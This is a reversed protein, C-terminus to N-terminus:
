SLRKPPTGWLDTWLTEGRAWMGVVKGSKPSSRKGSLRPKELTHPLPPWGERSDSDKGLVWPGPYLRLSKWVAEGWIACPCRHLHLRLIKRSSTVWSWPFSKNKESMVSDWSAFLGLSSQNRRLWSVRFHQSVWTEMSLFGWCINILVGQTVPMIGSVQSWASYSFPFMLM